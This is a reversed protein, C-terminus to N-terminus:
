TATSTTCPSRLVPCDRSTPIKCATKTSTSSCRTASPPRSTSAPTSTASPPAARWRSSAPRAPRRSSTPTSPTTVAANPVTLTSGTPVIPRVTYDDPTVGTFTYGGGVTAVTDIVNGADDLLEVTVADITPDRDARRRRRPRHLNVASREPRTFGLDVIDVVQNSVVTVDVPASTTTPFADTPLTTPDVSVSYDGPALGDFVYDGNPGTVVTTTSVGDFLEVTVGDLGPEGPDQVGDGDLDNFITDGISATTAYGFDLDDRIENSILTVAVSAPTTPTLQTGSNTGVPVSSAVVVVDYDGPAGTLSYSGDAATVDTDVVNGAGDRLEVTVGGLGPEGPGQVGDADLDDWVFDGVTAPAVYGFDATTIPADGSLIVYAQVNGGATTPAYNAPVSAPDVRVEYSGPALNVFNYGGGTTTRSEVFAGDLWLEVTVDLGPEGAQRVGDGNLDDFIENGIAGGTLEAYGFDVIDVVEDSEVTLTTPNNGTTSTYGVPLTTDDVHVEYTGPMVGSFSYVGDVTTVTQVVSGDGPNVLQIDIADLWPETPAGDDEIGNANSDHWVMDGITATTFFAFDADVADTGSALTTTITTPVGPSAVLQTGSNAGSPVTTLDVEVTYTGPALGAVSYAGSGDTTDTGVVNGGGDLVNVIVGALGPEGTDFVGDADLDTWIFDGITSPRTFGLDVDVDSDDSEVTVSAVAAPTTQAYDASPLTSTDVEVTYAGPAVGTFSYAGNSTTM